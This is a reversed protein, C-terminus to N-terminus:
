KEARKQETIDIAIGGLLQDKKGRKIPFKSTRYTKAANSIDYLEEIIVQLGEELAKQDAVIMKKAVERPFLEETTKGIWNEGGFVDRLYQNAYLTVGDKDKIFTAAPLHDMFATFRAESEKQEEETRKRATIDNFVTVFQGHKPCYATVEFYCELSATYQEFQIEKETLAVEGYKEIWSEELNPLVERVTKGIIESIKLGTLEEFAPNVELFRYDCPKGQDDLIIEHLAFGSPLSKLLMDYHLQSYNASDEQGKSRPM